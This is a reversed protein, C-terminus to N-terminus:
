SWPTPAAIATLQPSRRLSRRVRDIRAVELVVLCRTDGQGEEESRHVEPEESLRPHGFEFWSATMSPLGAVTSRKGSIQLWWQNHLFGLSELYRAASTPESPVSHREVVM